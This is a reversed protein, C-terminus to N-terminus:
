VLGALAHAGLNDAVVCFATGKVTRELNPILIGDQELTAIDELLPKLVESYGFRKIDAAKCLLALYM